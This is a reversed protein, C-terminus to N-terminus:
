DAELVGCQEPDLFVCTKFAFALGSGPLQQIISIAGPIDHATLRISAARIVGAAEAIGLDGIGNVRILDCRNYSM